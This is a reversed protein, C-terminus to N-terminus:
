IFQSKIFRCLMCIIIKIDNDNFFKYWQKTVQHITIDNNGIDDGIKIWPSPTM